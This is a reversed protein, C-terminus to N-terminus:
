LYYFTLLQPMKVNILVYIELETSKLVFLLHSRDPFVVIM